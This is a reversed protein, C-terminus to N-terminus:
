RLALKKLSGVYGRFCWFFDWTNQIKGPVSDSESKLFNWAFIGELHLFPKPNSTPVFPYRKFCAHLVLSNRFHVVLLVGRLLRSTSSNTGLWLFLFCNRRRHQLVEHPLFPAFAPAFSSVNQFLPLSDIFVLKYPRHWTSKLWQVEIPVTAAAWFSGATNFENQSELGRFVKDDRQGSQEYVCACVYLRITTPWADGHKSDFCRGRFCLTTFFLNWCRIQVTFSVM